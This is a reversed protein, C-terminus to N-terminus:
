EEGHTERRYRDPSQGTFEKFKKSFYIVDDFGCVSAIETLTRSKGYIDLLGKARDVRVKTLFRIPTMRTVRKFEARIYDEAYGSGRLLETVHFCPDAYGNEIEKVIARVRQEIPSECAASQLLFSAYAICLASLYGEGAYRNNLIMRALTEGEGSGGDRLRVPADFMLLHSFDGAVSINVFGKESVSGHPTEPPVIIISGREFPIEGLETALYGEGELYYM